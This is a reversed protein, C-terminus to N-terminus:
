HLRDGTLPERAGTLATAPQATISSKAARRARLDWRGSKLQVFAHKSNRRLVTQVTRYVGQYGRTSNIVGASHAQRAITSARLARHANDLISMIAKRNHGSEKEAEPAASTLAPTNNSQHVPVDEVTDDLLFTSIESLRETIRKRQRKQDVLWNKFERFKQEDDMAGEEKQRQGFHFELQADTTVTQHLNRKGNM